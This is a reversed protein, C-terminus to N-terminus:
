NSGPRILNATFTQNAANPNVTVLAGQVATSAGIVTFVVSARTNGSVTALVGAAGTAEVTLSSNAPIVNIGTTTGATGATCTNGVECYVKATFPMDASSTNTLFFRSSVAPNISFWPSQLAVSNQTINTVASLVIPTSGVASGGGPTLTVSLKQVPIVTNGDVYACLNKGNIDAITGTFSLPSFTAGAATTFTNAAPTTATATPPVTTGSTVTPCAGANVFVKAAGTITALGAPDDSKINLTSTTTSILDAVTVAIGTSAVLRASPTLLTTLVVAGGVDLTNNLGGGQQLRKLGSGADVTETNSAISFDLSTRFTAVNCSATSLLTTSSPTVGQASIATEHLQYRLAQTTNTGAVLSVPAAAPSLTVIDSAALSQGAAVTFQYVVYSDAVTGGAVVTVNAPPVSVAGGAVLMASTLPLAWKSGGVLDYRVYRFQGPSVGFGLTASATDGAASNLTIAVAAAPPLESAYLKAANSCTSSSLDINAASAATSVIAGAVALSLLAVKSKLVRM